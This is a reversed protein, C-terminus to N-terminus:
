HLFFSKSPSNTMHYTEKIFQNKRRHFWFYFIYNKFLFDFIGFSIFLLYTSPQDVRTCYHLRRNNSCMNKYKIM